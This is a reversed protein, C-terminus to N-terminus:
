GEKMRGAEERTQKKRSGAEIAVETEEGGDVM